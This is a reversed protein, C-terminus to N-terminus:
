PYLFILQNKKKALEMGIQMASLIFEIAEPPPRIVMSCLDRRLFSSSERKSLIKLRKEDKPTLTAEKMKPEDKGTLLYDISVDFYDAIKQLRETTPM